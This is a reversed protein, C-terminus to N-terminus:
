QPDKTDELTGGEREGEKERVKRFNPAGEVKPQGDQLGHMQDFHDVKLHCESLDVCPPEPGPAEETPAEEAQDQKPAEEESTAPAPAPAPPADSSM